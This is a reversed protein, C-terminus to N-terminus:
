FRPDGLIYKMRNNFDSTEIRFIKLAVLDYNIQSGGEALYVDAEKGGAIMYDLKSVINHNFMRWMAMTTRNDFVGEEIKLQEKIMHVDRDPRKRTSLKRSM